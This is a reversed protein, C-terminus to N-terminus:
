ADPTNGAQDGVPPTLGDKAAGTEAGLSMPEASKLGTVYANFADHDPQTFEVELRATAEGALLLGKDTTIAGILAKDRAPIKARIAPDALDDALAEFSLRAGRFCLKSLERKEIAIPIGERDRVAAVTHASVGAIKGIRILGLGEALLSVVLRYDEPRQKFLREGTFEGEKEGDAFFCAPMEASSLLEPQAAAAGILSHKPTM